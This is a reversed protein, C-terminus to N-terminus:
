KVEPKIIAFSRTLECTFTFRFLCQVFRPHFMIDQSEKLSNFLSSMFSTLVKGGNHNSKKIVRKIKKLCTCYGTMLITEVSLGRRFRCTTVDVVGEYLPHDFAPPSTTKPTVRGRDEFPLLWLILTM